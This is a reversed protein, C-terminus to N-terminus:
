KARLAVSVSLRSEEPQAFYIEAYYEYRGRVRRKVMVFEDFPLGHHVWKDFMFGYLMFVQHCSTCAIRVFRLQKGTDDTKFERVEVREVKEQYGQFNSLRLVKERSLTSM